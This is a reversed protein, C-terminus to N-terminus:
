PCRPPRAIVNRVDDAIKTEVLGPTRQVESGRSVLHVAVVIAGVARRTMRTRGIAVRDAARELQLVQEGARAVAELSFGLKAWPAALYTQPPVSSVLPEPRIKVALPVWGPEVTPAPMMRSPTYLPSPVTAEGPVLMLRLL